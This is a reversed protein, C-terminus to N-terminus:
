KILANCKECQLLEKPNEHGCYDCIIYNTQEVGCLPCFKHYTEISEHCHICHREDLETFANNRNQPNKSSVKILFVFVGFMIAFMLVPMIIFMPPGDALFIFSIPMMM